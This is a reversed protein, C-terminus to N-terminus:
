DEQKQNNMIIEALTDLGDGIYDDVSHIEARKGTMMREFRERPKELDVSQPIPDVGCAERLANGSLAGGSPIPKLDMMARLENPTFTSGLQTRIDMLADAIKSLVKIEDKKLQTQERYRQEETM